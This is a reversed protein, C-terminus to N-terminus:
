TSPILLRYQTNSMIYQNNPIPHKTDQLSQVYITAQTQTQTVISNTTAQKINSKIDFFTLKFLTNPIPIHANLIKPYHISIAYESYKKAFM